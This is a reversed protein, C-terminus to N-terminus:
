TPKMVGVQFVIHIGMQTNNGPLPRIVTVYIGPYAPNCRFSPPKWKPTTKSKRVQRREIGVNSYEVHFGFSTEFISEFQKVEDIAM